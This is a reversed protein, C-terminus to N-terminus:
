KLDWGSEDEDMRNFGNLPFHFKLPVSAVSRTVSNKM